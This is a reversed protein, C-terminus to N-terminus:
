KKVYEILLEINKIKSAIGKIKVEEVIKNKNKKESIVIKTLKNGDPLWVLNISDIKVPYVLNEIFRKETAGTEIIWINEKFEEKIKNMINEDSRIISIDSSPLVMILGEELKYAGTLTFKDITNNKEALKTLKISADVDGETLHGSKLKSECKSCLIGTKADFSCIPTKM